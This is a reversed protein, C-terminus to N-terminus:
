FPQGVERVGAAQNAPSWLKRHMEGCCHRHAAGGRPEASRSSHRLGRDHTRLWRALWSGDRGAEFAVTIRTIPKGGKRSGAEMPLTAASATGSGACNLPHCHVGPVIGAVLWGALGMEIVAIVTSDQDLAVFSRLIQQPREGTAHPAGDTQAAVITGNRRRGGWVM